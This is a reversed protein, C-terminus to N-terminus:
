QDTLAVRLPPAIHTKEEGRTERFLPLGYDILRVNFLPGFYNRASIYVPRGGNGSPSAFKRRRIDPWICFFGNRFRM